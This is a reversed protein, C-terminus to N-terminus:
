KLSGRYEMPTQGTIKKFTRSFHAVDTYGVDNSIESIRRAPDLLLEKARGIRLDNVIDFFNQKLHRNILKSLHWQSVYVQEAVECLSLHEAYHAKIYKLAARAVFAGAEGSEDHAEQGGHAGTDGSEECATRAESETRPASQNPMLAALRETMVAFAERLEHMNSPKLLYRCVGLSLAQRAYEFDRFATLVTIQLRPFETTLAAIMTLGDMNPMRIDSLLIDPRKQRILALGERGDRATGVVECGYESWPFVRELGKIIMDDDDVLIVRYM